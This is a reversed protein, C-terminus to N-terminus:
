EGQPFLFEEFDDREDPHLHSADDAYIGCNYDRVFLNCDSRYTCDPAHYDGICRSCGICVPIPTSEAM